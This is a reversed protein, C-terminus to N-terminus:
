KRTTGVASRDVVKPKDFCKFRGNDYVMAVMNDEKM